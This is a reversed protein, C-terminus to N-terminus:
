ESDGVFRAYFAEGVFVTADSAVDFEGSGLGLDQADGSFFRFPVAGGPEGRALDVSDDAGGACRLFIVTRVAGPDGLM